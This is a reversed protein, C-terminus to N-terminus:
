GAAQKQLYLKIQVSNCENTQMNDEAAKVDFLCFQSTASNGLLFPWMIIEEKMTKDWQNNTSVDNLGEKQLQM